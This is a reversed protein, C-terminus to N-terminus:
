LTNQASSDTFCPWNIVDAADECLWITHRDHLDHRPKQRGVELHWQASRTVTSYQGQKHFLAQQRQALDSQKCESRMRRGTRQNSPTMSLTRSHCSALACTSCIRQVRTEGLTGKLSVPAGAAGGMDLLKTAM